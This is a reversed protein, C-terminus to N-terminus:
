CKTGDAVETIRGFRSELEAINQDIVTRLETSGHIDEYEIQTPTQM